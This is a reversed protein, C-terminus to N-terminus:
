NLNKYAEFLALLQNGLESNFDWTDVIVRPYSPIHSQSEIMKEVDNYFLELQHITGEKGVGESHAKIEASLKKKVEEAENIFTLTKNIRRSENFVM